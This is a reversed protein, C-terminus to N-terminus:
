ITPLHLDYKDLSGILKTAVAVSAANRLDYQGQNLSALHKLWELVMVTFSQQLTRHENHMAEIFFKVRDANGMVNVFRAVKEALDRAKERDENENFENSNM